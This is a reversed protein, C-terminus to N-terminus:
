SKLMQIMQYHKELCRIWNSGWWRISPDNQDVRYVLRIINNM